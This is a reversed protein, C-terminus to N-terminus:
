KFTNYVQEITEHSYNKIESSSLEFLSINLSDTNLAKRALQAAQMLTAENIRELKIEDGPRLYLDNFVTDKTVAYFNNGTPKLFTCTRIIDETLSNEVQYLKKHRYIISWSYAALAMDLPLPYKKTGTFYRGASQKDFISNVSSYKAVDSINYVMLMGRNVPPVGTKGPYKFQHLRITASVICNRSYLQKNVCQLFYFYKKATSVTWDCDFQIESPRFPPPQEFAYRNRSEEAVRDVEDYSFLCKRLIKDVLAPIEASDIEAFTKNTIFVVPVIEIPISDHRTVSFAMDEPYNISVPYANIADSWDVDMIKFYLRKINNQELFEKEEPQLYTTNRWFYYSRHIIRDKCSTVLLALFVIFFLPRRSVEM